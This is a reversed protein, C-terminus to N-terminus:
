RQDGRISLSKNIVEQGDVAGYLDGLVKNFFIRPDVGANLLKAVIADMQVQVLRLAQEEKTPRIAKAFTKLLKEENKM